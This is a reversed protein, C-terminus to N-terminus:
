LAGALGSIKRVDKSVGHVWKGLDHGFRTLDGNVPELLTREGHLIAAAAHDLDIGVKRVAAGGFLEDVGLRRQVFRLQGRSAHQEGM